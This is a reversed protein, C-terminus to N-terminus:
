EAKMHPQKAKIFSKPVASIKKQAKKTMAQAGAAHTGHGQGNRRQYEGPDNGQFNGGM